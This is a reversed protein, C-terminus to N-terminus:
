IEDTIELSVRPFDRGEPAYYSRVKGTVKVGSDMLKSLSKATSAKIYGIQKYRSGLLGGIRPIKIYVAIANPDYKNKPERKLAVEMGERCHKKIVRNRGEFGTGAVITGKKM